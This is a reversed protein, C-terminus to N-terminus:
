YELEFTISYTHTAGAGGNTIQLWRAKGPVAAEVVNSRVATNAIDGILFPAAVLSSAVWSFTDATTSAFPAGSIQCRVAGTPVKFLFVENQVINRTISFTAEKTGIPSKTPAASAQIWSDAVMGAPLAPVAALQTANANPPVLRTDAPFLAKVGVHSGFFSITTGGGIDVDIVRQIATQDTFTVRAQLQSYRGANIATGLLQTTAVLTAPAAVVASDALNLIAQNSLPIITGAVATFRWVEAAHIAVQWWSCRSIKQDRDERCGAPSVSIIDASGSYDPWQTTALLPRILSHLQIHNGIQAPNRAM